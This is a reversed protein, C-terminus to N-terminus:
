ISSRRRLNRRGDKGRVPLARGKQISQASRLMDEAHIEKEARYQEKIKETEGIDIIKSGDIAISKNSQFGLGEGEMTYMFGTHIMVDIKKMNCNRELNYSINEHFLDSLDAEFERYREIRLPSAGTQAGLVTAQSMRGSTRTRM